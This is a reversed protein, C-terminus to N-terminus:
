SALGCLSLRSAVSFVRWHGGSSQALICHSSSLLFAFLCPHPPLCSPLVPWPLKPSKFLPPSHLAFDFLWCFLFRWGTGAQGAQLGRMGRQGNGKGDRKGGVELQKQCQRQKAAAAPKTRSGSGGSSGTAAKIREGEAKLGPGECTWNECDDLKQTMGLGLADARGMSRQRTKVDTANVKAGGAQSRERRWSRRSCHWGKNTSGICVCVCLYM